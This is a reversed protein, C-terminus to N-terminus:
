DAANARNDPKRGSPAVPRLVEDRGRVRHAAGSYSLQYLLANTIGLDHTRTGGGAKNAPSGM